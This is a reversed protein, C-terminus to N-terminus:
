ELSSVLSSFGDGLHGFMREAAKPGSGGRLLPYLRQSLIFLWGTSLGGAAACWRWRQRWGLDLAMGAIVLILGDRAGLMLLLLAFWLRPKEAREAWLALAFAPMVWTEPHFDFLITNFVVPQLWWLACALWCHKPSLGAQQSLWWIPIATFSLAIAQSAFLWHVSPLLGYAAGAGYLLWAGHDALVHVHEMSSVPELGRGILWAWQDFLGLDYANSQLLHHRLASCGWGLLGLVASCWWLAAPTSRHPTLRVALAAM